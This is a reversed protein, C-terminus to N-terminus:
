KKMRKHHNKDDNKQLLKKPEGFVVICDMRTWDTHLLFDLAAWLHPAHCPMSFDSRCM